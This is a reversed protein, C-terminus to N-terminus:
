SKINSAAREALIRLMKEYRKDVRPVTGLFPLNTVIKIDKETKIRPNFLEILILVAAVAIFGAFGGYVTNKAINPSSPQNPVIAYDIIKLQSGDINEDLEDLAVTAFANAVRAAIEPDAHTITLSFVETNNIAKTNMMELFEAHSIAYGTESRVRDFIRRTQMISTYTGVLSRSVTLDSYTLSGLNNSDSSINIFFVVNATYQPTICYRTLLFAGSTFTIVVIFILGLKRWLMLFIAQIDIENSEKM